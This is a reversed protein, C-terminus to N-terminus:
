SVVAISGCEIFTYTAVQSMAAYNTKSTPLQLRHQVHMDRNQYSTFEFSQFVIKM